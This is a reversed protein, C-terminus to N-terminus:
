SQKGNRRGLMLWSSIPFAESEGHSCVDCAVLIGKVSPIRKTKNQKLCPKGMYCLGCSPRFSMLYGLNDKFEHDDQKLRGFAPIVCTYWWAQSKM